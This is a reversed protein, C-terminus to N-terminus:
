YLESGSVRIAGGTLAHGEIQLLTRKTALGSSFGGLRGGHAIVRHCPVIIPVPNRGLAGGVARSAGPAGLQRAVDGYSLVRGFPIRRTVRLVRATFETVNRLDVTVSFQRRVGSFYADLEGLTTEVAGRDCVVEPAWRALRARYAKESTEGFSVDCVGQDSVGVFLRGVPTRLSDFRVVPRGQAEFARGLRERAQRVAANATKMDAVSAGTLLQLARQWRRGCKACHELHDGTDGHRMATQRLDGSLVADMRNAFQTCTM